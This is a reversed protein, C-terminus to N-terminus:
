GVGGWGGVRGGGGKELRFPLGNGDWGDVNVCRLERGGCHGLHQGGFDHCELSRRNKDEGDACPIVRRLIGMRQVYM